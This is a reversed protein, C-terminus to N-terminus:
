DVFIKESLSTYGSFYAKFLNVLHDVDEVGGTERISHMSLQPNGLDLTRVGMKSALIPGVTGGCPSDNKVVFLQLKVSAQEAIKQILLIGPANTTYRQNANVKIVVGANIRPKHETEYNGVYNPNVAHAMDASILFSKALAEATTTYDGNIRQLVSPLFNSDAGQQSLSGIEEHDFCSILRISSDEPDITSDALGRVSAFTCGLNDLRASFIFEDNIGGLCAQQTDYLVLEFDHIQDVSNLGLEKSILDLIAPHHREPMSPLSADTSPKNLEAAAMQGLIPTMHTEKNFKFAENVSRDLHIALTPIGLIPKNIKLLHQKYEGDVDVMVRGALSLDRDFWTHALLGGYTEVGVQLYGEASRKSKPKVRLTPSDTHAACMSIANGPKWKSGVAFAIISSGNRTVFYKGCAKVQAKASWNLSESLQQFGAGLLIKKASAVAHYPTPSANLFNIFDHALVSM